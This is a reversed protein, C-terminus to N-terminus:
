MFITSSFELGKVSTRNQSFIVTWKTVCQELNERAISVQLLSEFSRQSFDNVSVGHLSSRLLDCVRIGFGPRSSTALKKALQTGRIVFGVSGTSKAARTQDFIGMVVQLPLLQLWKRTLRAVPLSAFGFLLPNILVHSSIIDRSLERQGPFM